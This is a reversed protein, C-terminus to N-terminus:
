QLLAKNIAESLQDIDVPKKLWASINFASEKRIDDPNEASSLFIVPICEYDPLKRVEKLFEIGNTGPMYYDTIIIDIKTAKLIEIAEPSRQCSFTKYGLRGLLDSMIENSVKFDDL